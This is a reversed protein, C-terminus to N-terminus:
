KLNLTFPFSSIITFYYSILRWLLIAMLIPAGEPVIQSYILYFIGEAGVSGGPMPIYASVLAITAQAAVCLLFSDIKVDFSLFVFYSVGYYFVFSIINQLILIIYVKFEQGRFDKISNYFMSVEEQLRRIMKDKNKVLKIRALFNVIATSFKLLKEPRYAAILMFVTLGMNILIGVVIFVTFPHGGTYFFSTFCFTLLLTMIMRGIHYFFLQIGLISTARGSTIGKKNLYIVQMPQGGTALPTIASFFEGIMFTKLAQRFSLNQGVNNAIEKTILTQMLWYIIMMVIVTRITKIDVNLIVKKIADPGDLFYIGVVLMLFTLAVIFGTYKKSM